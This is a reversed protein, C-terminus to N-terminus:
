NCLPAWVFITKLLTDPNREPNEGFKEVMEM